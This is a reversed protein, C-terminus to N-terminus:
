LFAGGLQWSPKVAIIPVPRMALIPEFGGILLSARAAFLRKLSWM